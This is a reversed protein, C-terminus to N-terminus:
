IGTILRIKEYFYSAFFIVNKLNKSYDQHTEIPNSKLFVQAYNVYLVNIKHNSKFDINKFFM